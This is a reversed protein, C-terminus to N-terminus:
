CLEAQNPPQCGARSCTIASAKNARALVARLCDANEVLGAVSNQIVGEVLIGGVTDGAGVTDVVQIKVAAEEIAGGNKTIGMLGQSGKTIVVLSTADSKLWQSAIDMLPTDPYLWELDEDSAKVVASIAAFKEVAKRYVDRDPVVSPRVNPDFVIPVGQQLACTAWDYIVSAGPEIITALTGIHLVAPKHVAPDPLWSKSFAFTATGDILFEYSAKGHEDLSVTALCTPQDSELCLNLGVKDNSLNAKALVGYADSSLGDIFEVPFGLRALVKATNAAGGGVVNIREGGAEAPPLRDILVEGCVWAAKVAPVAM